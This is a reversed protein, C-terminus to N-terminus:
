CEDIQRQHTDGESVLTVSNELSDPWNKFCEFLSEKDKYHLIKIPNSVAMKSVPIDYFWADPIENISQCYVFKELERMQIYATALEASAFAVPLAGQHTKVRVLGQKENKRGSILFYM